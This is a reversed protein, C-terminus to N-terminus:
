QTLEKNVLLLDVHEQNCQAKIDIIKKTWDENTQM